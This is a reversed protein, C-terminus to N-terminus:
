SVDCLLYPPTQYSTIAPHPGVVEQAQELAAALNPATHFGMVQAARSHPSCVAIVRGAHALGHCAWYWAYLAHVGHFAYSHRYLEIYRPDTAFEEEFRAEIQAPDTTQPLVRRYFDIYSPHHVPHFQEYLPHLLIFVGGRRLLPKGRYFNFFYGLGLCTVLVPNMISNVSYPGLYPIGAVVVDAQGQVAVAHQRYVAELTRPHVAETAGAHIALLGYPAQIRAYVARKLGTPTISTVLRSGQLVARDFASHTWVPRGMFDVPWPLSANNVVTEIRFVKLQQEVLRGMREVSHHLASHPPDMYSRSQMMTGPNHHHRLSHYTGLGTPIAKHGGSQSAININVYILLDSEMARRNIEVVEGAATRGLSLINDPDEADHNYLRHPHFANFIRRGLIGRLESPTMRRHVSIAAILHIDDVGAAALRELVQEIVRQRLDPRRMAPLPVCLDDFAITVKMGPRLCASLPPSDLPHDLARTIAGDVDAIAPLPPPGYILRSGAPMQEYRLGEGYHFLVKRPKELVRQCSAPDVQNM